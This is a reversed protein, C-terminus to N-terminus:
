TGQHFLLYRAGGKVAEDIARALRSPVPDDALRLMAVNVVYEYVGQASNHVHAFSAREVIWQWEPVDSPADYEGCLSTMDFDASPLGVVPLLPAELTLVVHNPMIGFQGGKMVYRVRRRVTQGSYQATAPAYERLVLDDGVRYDRDDYRVEFMKKLSAIDDFYPAHCKLIHTRGSPLTLFIGSPEVVEAKEDMKAGKSIDKRWSQMTWMVRLM